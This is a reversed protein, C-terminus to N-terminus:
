SKGERGIYKNIYKKITADVVKWYIFSSIGKCNPYTAKDQLEKKLEVLMKVVDGKPVVEVLHAFGLLGIVHDKATLYGAVVPSDADSVAGAVKTMQEEIFKALVDVDVYRAM